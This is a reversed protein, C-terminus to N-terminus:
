YFVCFSGRGIAVASAAVETRFRLSITGANVGNEVTGAVKVFSATTVGTAPNVNADYAGNSATHIATASTATLVTFRVAVPNAPGNISVQLATTTAATSYSLECIFSYSTNASITKSLGTVNAFTTSTSVQDSAVRAVSLDPATNATCTGYSVCQAALVISALIVM